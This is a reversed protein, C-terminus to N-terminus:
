FLEEIRKGGEFLKIPRGNSTPSKEQPAMGLINCFSVFPEQVDM